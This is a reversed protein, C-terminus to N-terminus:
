IDPNNNREIEPLPLCTQNGMPFGQPTSTPFFDLGYKDIYRRVDGQRVGDLFLTRKREDIVKDRIENAGGAPAWVETIGHRARIQNIITVAAAGGTIEAIVYQAEDGSAYRLPTTPTSVKRPAYLDQSPEFAPVPNLALDVRPDPIGTADITLDRFDPGVTWNAFDWTRFHVRNRQEFSNTSYLTFVEFDPAVQQADSLAEGDKGLILRVRARGVLAAQRVDPDANAADIAATFEAEALQYVDASTLLPGTGAFATTCWLDGIFTKSFGTLTSFQAFEAANTGEDVIEEFEGAIVRDQGIDSDAVSRQMLVFNGGGISNTRASGGGHDEPVDRRDWAHIGPATGSSAFEDNFLGAWVIFSDFSQFFDAQAGVLAERLTVISGGDVTQPDPDVDLLDSCSTLCLALGLALLGKGARALLRTTGGPSWGTDFGHGFHKSLM